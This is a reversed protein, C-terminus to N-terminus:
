LCERLFLSLELMSATRPLSEMTRHVYGIDPDVDVIIDGDLYVILRMHSSAPHRLGIFLELVEYGNHKGLRRASIAPSLTRMMAVM